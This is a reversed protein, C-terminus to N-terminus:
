RIYYSALLVTCCICATETRLINKSLNIPITKSILLNKEKQSFGGEPGVICGINYDIKSTNHTKLLNIQDTELIKKETNTNLYNESNIKHLNITNDQVFESLVTMRNLNAVREIASYLKISSYFTNIFNNINQIKHIIPVDLRESQESAQIAITNLKEINLKSYQTYDSILPYFDTIGLETCKEIILKINDYKILCFALHLKINNNFVRLLTNSKVSIKNKNILLISCIWEGYKENYIIIEDNVKIRLVKILHNNWREPLIIENNSNINNEYYIRPIHRSM